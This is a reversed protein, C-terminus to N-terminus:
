ILAEFEELYREFSNLAQQIPSPTSLDVGADKLTEDDM